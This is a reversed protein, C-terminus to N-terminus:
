GAPDPEGTKAERQSFMQPENRAENWDQEAEKLEQESDKIARDRVRLAEHEMRRGNFYGILLGGLAGILGFSYFGLVMFGAGWISAWIWWHKHALRATELRAAADDLEQRWYHMALNGIERETGILKKRLETDRVTFYLDRLRRTTRVQHFKEETRELEHQKDSYREAADYIGIYNPPEARLKEAAEAIGALKELESLALNSVKIQARTEDSKKCAPM